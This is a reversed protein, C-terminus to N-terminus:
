FAITLLLIILILLKSTTSTSSKLYSIAEILLSRSSLSCILELTRVFDFSFIVYISKVAEFLTDTGTVSCLQHSAEQITLKNTVKLMINFFTIITVKTYSSVTRILIYIDTINTVRIIQRWALRLSKTGTFTLFSRFLEIVNCNSRIQIQEIFDLAEVKNSTLAKIDQCADVINKRQTIELIASFFIFPQKNKTIKNVRQFVTIVGVNFCTYFRTRVTVLDRSGTIRYLNEIVVILSTSGTESLLEEIAYRFHTLETFSKILIVCESFTSRNLLKMLASTAEASSDVRMASTLVSFTMNWDVETKLQIYVSSFDSSGVGGTLNLVVRNVGEVGKGNGFDQYYHPLDKGNNKGSIRLLIEVLGVINGHGSMLRIVTFGELTNTKNTLITVLRAVVSINTTGEFDLFFNFFYDWSKERFCRFLANIEKRTTIGTVKKIYALAEHVDKLGTLKFLIERSEDHHKFGCFNVFDDFSWEGDSFKVVFKKGGNQAANAINWSKSWSSGRGGNRHSEHHESHSRKGYNDHHETHYERHNGHPPGNGHHHNPEPEAAALYVACLGLFVFIRTNMM